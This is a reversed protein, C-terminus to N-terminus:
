KNDVETKISLIEDVDNQSLSFWEGRIRKSEFKKHLLAEVSSTSEMHFLLEVEPEESQLTCERYNPNKSRGIKYFGNRKNHMLYVFALKKKKQKLRESVRYDMDKIRYEQLKKNYLEIEEPTIHELYEQCALIMKKAHKISILYEAGGSIYTKGDVSVCKHSETLYEGDLLEYFVKVTDIM